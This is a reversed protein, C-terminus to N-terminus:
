PTDQEDQLARIAAAIDDQPYRWGLPSHDPAEGEYGAAVKAAREIGRNEAARLFEAMKRLRLGDSAAGNLCLADLRRAEEEYADSVVEDGDTRRPM